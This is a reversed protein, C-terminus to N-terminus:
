EKMALVPNAMSEMTNFLVYWDDVGWLSTESSIVMAEPKPDETEILVVHGEEIEVSPVTGSTGDQTLSIRVVYGEEVEMSRSAPHFSQWALSVGFLVAAAQAM